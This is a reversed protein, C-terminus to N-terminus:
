FRDEETGSETTRKDLTFETEETIKGQIFEVSVNIEKDTPTTEVGDLASDIANQVLAQLEATTIEASIKVSIIAHATKM